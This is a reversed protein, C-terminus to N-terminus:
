LMRGGVVAAQLAKLAKIEMSGFSLSFDLAKPSSKYEFGMSNGDSNAQLSFSSSLLHSSVILRPQRTKPLFTEIGDQLVSDLIATAFRISSLISFIASRTISVDHALREVSSLKDMSRLSVDEVISDCVSCTPIAMVTLLSSDTFGWFSRSSIFSTSPGTGVMLSSFNSALSIAKVLPSYRNWLPNCFTTFLNSSSSSLTPLAVSIAKSIPCSRILVISPVSTHFLFRSSSFSVEELSPESSDSCLVDSLLSLVDFFSNSTSSSSLSVRQLKLAAVSESPPHSPSSSTLVRFSRAPRISLTVSLLCSHLLTSSLGLKGLTTSFM